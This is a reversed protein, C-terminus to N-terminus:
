GLAIDGPYRFDPLPQAWFAMWGRMAGGLDNLFKSM